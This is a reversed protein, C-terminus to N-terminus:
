ERTFVRLKQVKRTIIYIVIAAARYKYTADEPMKYEISKAFQFLRAWTIKKTTKTIKPSLKGFLVEKNEEIKKLM